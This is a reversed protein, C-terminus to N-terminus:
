RSYKGMLQTGLDILFRRGFPGDELGTELWEPLPEHIRTSQIGWTIAMVSDVDGGWRVAQLMSSSLSDTRTLLHLVAHVTVQAVSCQGRIGHVPGNWVVAMMRQLQTLDFEPYFKGVNERKCWDSFESFPRNTYLAFHSLLAVIVSSFRGWHTDHTISANMLAANIVEEVTALVGIPVARMAAGNKDSTGGVHSLFSPGTRAQESELFDQFDRSYGKRPNRQFVRVFANAFQLRSFSSLYGELLVETVAISMQTDDTYEGSQHGHTPHAIYRDFRLVAERVATDRPFWLYEAAMGFADGQAIRLLMLPNPNLMKTSM